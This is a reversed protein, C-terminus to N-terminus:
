LVPSTDWHKQDAWEWFDDVSWGTLDDAVCGDYIESGAEPPFGRSVAEAECALKCRVIADELEM